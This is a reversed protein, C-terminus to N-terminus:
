FVASMKQPTLKGIEVYDSFSTSVRFTIRMRVGAILFSSGCGGGGETQSLPVRIVWKLHFGTGRIVSLM